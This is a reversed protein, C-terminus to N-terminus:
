DLEEAVLYDRFIDFTGYQIVAQNVRYEDLWEQFISSGSPKTKLLATRAEAPSPANLAVVQQLILKSRKFHLVPTKAYGTAWWRATRESVGFIRGVQSWTLGSLSHIQNISLAFESLTIEEL